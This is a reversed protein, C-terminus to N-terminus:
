WQRRSEDADDAMAGADARKTSTARGWAQDRATRADHCRKSMARLNSWVLRLEPRDKISEIHDVVEAALLRKKGAECDECECVPHMRLFTKRLERWARDYGRASSSGRQEDERKRKLALHETCLGAGTNVTRPCATWRCPKPASQM